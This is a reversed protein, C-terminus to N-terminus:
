DELIPLNPRNSEKRYSRDSLILRLTFLNFEYERHRANGPSASSSSCRETEPLARSLKFRFPLRTVIARNEPPCETGRIRPGIGTGQSLQM